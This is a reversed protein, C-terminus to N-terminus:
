RAKKARLGVVVIEARLPLGDRVFEHTRETAAVFAAEGM